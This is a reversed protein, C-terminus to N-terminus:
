RLSLKVLRSFVTGESGLLPDNAPYNWRLRVTGSGGFAVHTDFYGHPDTVNLSRITTFDGGSSPKFQIEVMQAAGTEDQRAFFSPRACGWVELSRGRRATTVPLFVPLRWAGYSPKPRQNFSLLGSAFGGYNNSALSPLPDALLYQMYSQIRPDRWSLYEAWNIYYAATSQSIYIVGKTPHKPPSTIYGYETNWIPFRKDSGYVRQLRDLGRELNNIQALSSYDPDTPREVPPAWWRSYPHNAFGSASFLGPHDRRFARSGAATAPCGRLAAASGRLTQYNADVCYLARLFRLPKMGSFVGFNDYGRPAVEGFLIMDRAHGTGQLSRWAADILGRYLKPSEEISLHGPVGQPALSPGYDPENWISWFRVAPLDEAAGPALRHTVPDYNGSYRTAVARVFAGYESASPEWNPHPKGKPAGPGTAWLPAGGALDLDIAIGKAQAWRVSNDWAAWAADGYAQPDSAHFGSPRHHSLPEPAISSWILFLRTRTVGLERLQAYATSPQSLTSGDELISEQTHSAQAPGAVASLACTIFLAGLALRRV